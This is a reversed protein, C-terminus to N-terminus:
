AYMKNIIQPNVKDQVGYIGSLLRKVFYSSDCDYRPFSVINVKYGKDKLYDYLCKANTEKFSSDLGEFEIIKGRTM